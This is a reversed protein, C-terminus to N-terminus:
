LEASLLPNFGAPDIYVYNPMSTGSLQVTFSGYIGPTFVNTITGAVGGTVEHVESGVYNANVISPVARMPYSNIMVVSGYMNGSAQSTIFQTGAPRLYRQCKLLQEGYDPIENLVWAGNADQHALTQVSGLELKVARITKGQATVTFTKTEDDYVPTVDTVGDPTLVTATVTQGVAYELVQAITGNLVIGGSNITVSGSVLKWRDFFYGATSITGSAGRQNVPNGFYWNDLLNPNCPFAKTDITTGTISINAGPIYTPGAAGTEGRDGKDGKEGKEGTDGKDGKEGKEGKAGVDGTDGKAGAPGQAGTDGKEGKDGKPGAAGTDGKPGGTGVPLQSAQYAGSDGNWLLWYGDAGPQPPHAALQRMRTELERFATPLEPWATGESLSAPVLVETVTSHRQTVGDARLTGRVQLTYTGGSPLNERKLLVGVGGPRAQLPLADLGGEPEQLLLEWDYGEPVDGVIDLWVSGNDLQMAAPAGDWTLRWDKWEIM